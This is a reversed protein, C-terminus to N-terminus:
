RCVVKPTTQGNGYQDVPGVASICVEPPSEARGSASLVWGLLAAGIVLALLVHKM